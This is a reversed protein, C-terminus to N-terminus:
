EKKETLEEYTATKPGAGAYLAFKTEALALPTLAVLRAGIGYWGPHTDSKGPVAFGGDDVGHKLLRMAEDEAQQPTFGEYEPFKIM